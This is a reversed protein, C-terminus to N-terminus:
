SRLAEKSAAIAAAAIKSVEKMAKYERDLRAFVPMLLHNRAALIAVKDRAEKVEQVTFQM